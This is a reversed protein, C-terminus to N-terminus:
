YEDDTVNGSDDPANETQKSKLNSDLGGKVLKVNMISILQKRYTREYESCCGKVHIHECGKCYYVKKKTINMKNLLAYENLGLKDAKGAKNLTFKYHKDYADQIEKPKLTSNKCYKLQLYVDENFAEIWEKFDNDKDSVENKWEEMQETIVLDGKKLLEFYKNVLLPILQPTLLELRDGLKSDPTIITSYKFYILRNGVGGSKDNYPIIDNSAILMPTTWKGTVANKGKGESEIIEGRTMSKLMDLPIAKPLKEGENIILLEKNNKNDLCFKSEGGATSVTVVNNNKLSDAVIKIGTSKGTNSVGYSVPVVGFKDLKNIPYFARGLLGLNMNMTEDTFDQDTYIKLLEAPIVSVPNYDVDFYNRSLIGVPFDKTIFENNFIDFLGNKYGFYKWDYKMFPFDPHPQNENLFCMLMKRGSVLSSGTFLSLNYASASIFGNLIEENSEYITKGNYENLRKCVVQTDKIRILQENLVWDIFAVFILDNIKPSDEKKNDVSEPEEKFLSKNKVYSIDFSYKITNQTWVGSFWKNNFDDKAKMCLLKVQNRTAGSKKLACIINFCYNDNGICYAQEPLGDILKQLHEKKYNIVPIVSIESDTDPELDEEKEDEKPYFKITPIKKDANYVITDKHVWSVLQGHLIDCEWEINCKQKRYTTYLFYHPMKKTLSLFYPYSSYEYAHESTEYEGTKDDIDLQQIVETDILIYDTQNKAWKWIKQCSELTHLKLDNINYNRHLDSSNNIKFMSDNAHLEHTMFTKKDDEVILKIPLFKLNQNALYDIINM